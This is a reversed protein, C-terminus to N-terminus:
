TVNPLLPQRATGPPLEVPPAEVPEDAPDTPDVIMQVEHGPRLLFQGAERRNEVIAWVRYQGGAHVLPNVFAIRGNFQEVRGDKLLVEVTVRHDAVEQPDTTQVSLFGEVRLRNMRVVRLIVEGAQVWEGPRKFIEVVVGDLPSIVKRREVTLEAVKINAAQVERDYAALHQQMRAQETGLDARRKALELRRLEGAGVANTARRNTEQAAWLDAAAVDAAAQAYRVDIDNGAVESAKAHQARASEAAARPERDDIQGLQQGQTVLAGERVTLQLLPGADRAPVTVEELLSVLCHEIVIPEAPEEDAILSGSTSPGVLLSATLLALTATAM